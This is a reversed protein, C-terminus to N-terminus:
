APWEWTTQSYVAGHGFGLVRTPRVRFVLSRIRIGRGAVPDPLAFGGEVARFDWVDTGYKAAYAAAVPELEAQAVVQDAVGEVVIDLGEALLGRGTSLLCAPNQALNRAKREEDGTSFWLADDHWVAVLPTAHPRGDPRVTSVFFVEAARITDVATAWPVPEADPSSYGHIEATPAPRPM